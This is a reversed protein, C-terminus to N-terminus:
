NILRLKDNFIIKKSRCNQTSKECFKLDTLSSQDRHIEFRNSKRSWKWLLKELGVLKQPDQRRILDSSAMANYKIDRGVLPISKPHTKRGTLKSTWPQLNFHYVEWWPINCQTALFSIQNQVLIRWWIRTKPIAEKEDMNFILMAYHHWEDASM